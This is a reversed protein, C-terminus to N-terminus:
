FNISKHEGSPTFIIHDTLSIGIIEGAMKLRNTLELDATSPEIGGSPHNHLIIISSANLKIAPYFVERPHVLSATLTGISVAEKYLLQNRANLYLVIFHEKRHTTILSQAQIYAQQTNNIETYCSKATKNISKTIFDLTKAQYTLPNM